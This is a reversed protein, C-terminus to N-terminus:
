VLLRSLLPCKHWMGIRVFDGLRQDRKGVALAPRQHQADAGIAAQARDKRGLLGGIGQHSRLPQAPRGHRRLPLLFLHRTAGNHQQTDVAAAFHVREIVAADEHALAGFVSLRVTGLHVPQQGGAGDAVEFRLRDDASRALVEVFVDDAVIHLAALGAIGAVGNQGLVLSSCCIPAKLSSRVGVILPM